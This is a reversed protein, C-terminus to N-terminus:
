GKPIGERRPMRVFLMLCAAVLAAGICFIFPLTFSGTIDRLQGAVRHAIIAGVGYFPTWIGIVTGMLEKRFYDGGCAGYMPFTVGYFAGLLAVSAFLWATTGGALVMSTIALAIVINSFFITWRRGIYDSLMPIVLVGFVQGFGHVTALLSAREYPLGLNSRAYDVIFTLTTYLTGAILFYSAGIVWFHSARFIEAYRERFGPTSLSAPAGASTPTREGWRTLGKDEPRSRLALGNIVVMILAATGMLYWCYRWGWHAVVAPYLRGMVALGLGFGTSLIGLAMGRRRPAFWQQALTVVPTWMAAGGIGTIAFFFAAQSVTAATGMLLTGVGLLVGFSSIVLRAGFRDTLYGTFPSLCLYTFLYANIIDGGERRTIGATRIMEPLLVGYGLRIGYNIFLNVFCLALIIWAYHIIGTKGREDPSM